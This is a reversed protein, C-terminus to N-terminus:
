MGRSSSYGGADSLISATMNLFLSKLTSNEIPKLISLANERYQEYLGLAKMRADQFSSRTEREIADIVSLNNKGGAESFSHDNIDDLLQYAIGLNEGYLRLIDELINDAGAYVAGLLLAVEFAPSTKDRMVELIEGVTKNKRHEHWLLDEGQGRCLRLHGRATIELLRAKKESPIEAESILRYGEGLLFDGINLAIPVGWKIYAAEQGYRFVETDEIDDHILSAKHFCEVAVAIKQLSIQSSIDTVGLCRAVAAVMFPRLRRGGSLLWERAAQDTAGHCFGAIENIKEGSFWRQTERYIDKM